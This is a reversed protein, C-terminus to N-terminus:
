HKTRITKLQTIFVAEVLKVVKKPIMKGINRFQKGNRILTMGSFIANRAYQTATPLISYPVEKELKYYNSVQKRLNEM